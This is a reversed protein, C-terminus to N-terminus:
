RAKSLNGNITGTDNIHANTEGIVLLPERELTWGLNHGLMFVGVLQTVTGLPVSNGATNLLELIDNDAIM